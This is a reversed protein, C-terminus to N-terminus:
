WYNVCLWFVFREVDPIEKKKEKNINKDQQNILLVFM